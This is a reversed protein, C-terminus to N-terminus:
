KELSLITRDEYTSSRSEGLSVEFNALDSSIGVKLSDMSSVQESHMEVDLPMSWPSEM